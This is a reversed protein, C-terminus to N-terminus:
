PSPSKKLTVALDQGLAYSALADRLEDDGEHLAYNFLKQVTDLQMLDTRKGEAPKIIRYRTTTVMDPDIERAFREYSKRGKRKQLIKAIGAMDM